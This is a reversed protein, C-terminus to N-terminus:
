SSIDSILPFTPSQLLPPSSFVPPPSLLFICLASACHSLYYHVLLYLHKSSFIIFEYYCFINSYQISHVLTTIVGCLTKLDVTAITASAPHHWPQFESYPSKQWLIQMWPLHFSIFSSKLHMISFYLQFCNLWESCFSMQSLWQWWGPPFVTYMKRKAFKWQGVAVWSLRINKQNAILQKGTLM